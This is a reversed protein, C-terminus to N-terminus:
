AVTFRKSIVQKCYSEYLAPAEKKLRSSDFRNSTVQKFRVTYIGAKLEEAERKNMEAKLEDKLSEIDEDLESKMAELTKLDEVMKIIDKTSM